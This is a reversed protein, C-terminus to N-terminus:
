GFGSTRDIRDDSTRFILSTKGATIQDWPLLQSYRVPAGNLFTGNRSDLDRLFFEKGFAEIQFHAGSIAADELEIDAGSRGFITRALTLPRREQGPSAGLILLFAEVELKLYPVAPAASDSELEETGPESTQVAEQQRPKSELEDMISEMMLRPQFVTDVSEEPQGKAPASIVTPPAPVETSTLEIEAGCEPCRRGGGAPDIRTVDMDLNCRDCHWAM